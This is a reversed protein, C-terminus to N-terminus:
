GSGATPIDYRILQDRNLLWLSGGASVLLWDPEGKVSSELDDADLQWRPGTLAAAVPDYRQILHTGVERWFSDGANILPSETVLQLTDGSLESLGSDNFLWCRGGSGVPQGVADIRGIVGLTEQDVRHM